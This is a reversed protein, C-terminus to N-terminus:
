TAVIIVWAAIMIIAIAVVSLVVPSRWWDARQDRVAPRFAIVPTAPADAQGSDADAPHSPTDEAVLAPSMPEPLEENATDLAAPDPKSGRAAIRQLWVPLDGIDLMTRPDIVSTDPPPVDRRAPERVVMGRWAPPRQLWEPMTEGLRGDPIPSQRTDPLAADDPEPFPRTNVREDM